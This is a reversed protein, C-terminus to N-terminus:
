GLPLSWLMVFDELCNFIGYKQSAGLNGSQKSLWFFTGKPRWFYRKHHRRFHTQHDFNRNYHSFIPWSSLFVTIKSHKWFGANIFFGLFGRKPRWYTENKDKKLIAPLTGGQLQWFHCNECYKWLSKQINQLDLEFEVKAREDLGGSSLVAFLVMTFHGSIPIKSALNYFVTSFYWPLLLWFRHQPGPFLLFSLFTGHYFYGFDSSKVSTTAVTGLIVMTFISLILTKSGLFLFFM